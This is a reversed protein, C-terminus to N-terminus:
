DRYLLVPVTSHTMVKTAESGVLWEALGGRQDSAMFILDCGDKEAQEIIALYARHHTFALHTECPVGAANSAEAIFALAEEAEHRMQTALTQELDDHVSLMWPTNIHPRAAALNLPFFGTISAHEDHALQVAARVAKRSRETGDTTVLINKFTM